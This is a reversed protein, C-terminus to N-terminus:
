AEVEQELSSKKASLFKEFEELDHRTGTLWEQLPVLCAEVMGSCMRDLSDELWERASQAAARGVDLSNDGVKVQTSESGDMASGVAGGGMSGLGVGVLAGAPGGVIFGGVAGALAGLLTGGRKKTTTHYTITQYIDQYTPLDETKLSQRALGSTLAITDQAITRALQASAHELAREAADRVRDRFRDDDGVHERAITMIEHELGRGGNMALTHAQQELTSRVKALQAEMDEHGTELKKVNEQMQRIDALILRLPAQMKIRVGEGRAINGLVGYFDPMGSKSWGPEEPHEEAYRVSLTVTNRALEERLTAPALEGLEEVIADISSDRVEAKEEPSLIELTTVLEGTREDEDKITEDCRTLVLLLKKGSELIRRIEERDSERASSRSSMTYVVLDACRLYDAALEGNKTTVSHIGPSDIWTFGPKKFYQICATAEEFAVLFKRKKRTAEKQKRLKESQQAGADSVQEVDLEIDPEAAVDAPSPDHKGYALYNGLSSKGSKM